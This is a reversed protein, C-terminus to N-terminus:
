INSLSPESGSTIDRAVPTSTPTSTCTVPPCSMLRPPQEQQEAASSPPPQWYHQQQQQQSQHQNHQQQVPRVQQQQQSQRHHFQQEQFQHHHLQQVQQPPQMVEARDLCDNMLQQIKIKADGYVPKPLNKLIDGVWSIFTVRESQDASLVEQRQKVLQEMSSLIRDARDDLSSICSDSGGSKHKGLSGQSLTSTSVPTVPTTCVTTTTPTPQKVAPMEIDLPIDETEQSTSPLPSEETTSSTSAGSGAAAAIKAKLAVVNRRQVEQHLGGHGNKLKIYIRPKKSPATAADTEVVRAVDSEADIDHPDPAPEPDQSPEPPPSRRRKTGKKQARPM